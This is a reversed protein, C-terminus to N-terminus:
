LLFTANSYTFWIGLIVVWTTRLMFSLYIIVLSSLLSIAHAIIHDQKRTIWGELTLLVHGGDLPLIPLLNFIGWGINVWILDHYAVTFLESPWAKLFAPATVFCIGGLLFGAAPGALSIALRRPPSIALDDNWST